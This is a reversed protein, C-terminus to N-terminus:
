ENMFGVVIEVQEKLSLDAHYNQVIEVIDNLDKTQENNLLIETM